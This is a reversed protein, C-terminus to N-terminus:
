TNTFFGPPLAVDERDAEILRGNARLSALLAREEADDPQPPRAPTSMGDLYAGAAEGVLRTSRERARAAIRTAGHLHRTDAGM